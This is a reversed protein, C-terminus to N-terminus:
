QPAEQFTLLLGEATETHQQALGLVPEPVEGALILNVRQGDSDLALVRCTCGSLVEDLSLLLPWPFAQFMAAQQGASLVRQEIESVSLAYRGSRSFHSASWAQNEEVWQRTTAQIGRGDLYLALLLIWPLSVVLGAVLARSQLRQRWGMARPAPQWLSCPLDTTAQAWEPWSVRQVSSTGPLADFVARPLCLGDLRGTRWLVKDDQIAAVPEGQWPLALYDPLVQLQALGTEKVTNQWQEWVARDIVAVVLSSDDEEGLICIHVNDPSDLLREEMLWPLMSAWRQRPGSPRAVRHLSVQEGPIWLLETDGALEGPVAQMRSWHEIQPM